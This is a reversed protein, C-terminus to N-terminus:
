SCSIHFRQTRCTFSGTKKADMICRKCGHNYFYNCWNFCRRCSYWGKDFYRDDITIVQIAAKGNPKLLNKIQSFYVPWYKEGVAEIMEISVVRDYKGKIDRYDCLEFSVKKELNSKKIRDSAFKLQNPSITVGKISCGIKKATYEAFGGWGCGIELVQHHPKINLNDILLQYKNEQAEKLSEKENQFIASSYTM